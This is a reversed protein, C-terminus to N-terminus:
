RPRPQRRRSRLWRPLQTGQYRAVDRILLPQDTDYLMYSNEGPVEAHTIVAHVCPIRRARTADLRVIRAHPYATYLLQGVLMGPWYFDTTYRAQGTVIAMGNVAPTRRGVVAPDEVHTPIVEPRAVM